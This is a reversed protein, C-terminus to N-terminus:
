SGRIPEKLAGRVTSLLRQQEVKTTVRVREFSGSPDTRLDAYLGSPDTHFHVFAKSGRYFAGPSKETLVETARLVAVLEDLQELDEPTAHRM